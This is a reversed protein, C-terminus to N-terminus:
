LGLGEILQLGSLNGIHLRCEIDALVTFNIKLIGGKREKCFKWM